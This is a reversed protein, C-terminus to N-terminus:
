NRKIISVVFFVLLFVRNKFCIVVLDASVNRPTLVALLGCNALAIRYWCIILNARRFAHVIRTNHTINYWNRSIFRRQSKDLECSLLWDAMSFPVRPTRAICQGYIRTQKANEIHRHTQTHTIPHGWKNWYIPKLIDLASLSQVM